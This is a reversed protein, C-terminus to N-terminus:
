LKSYIWEALRQVTNAIEDPNVLTHCDGGLWYSEAATLVGAAHDFVNLALVFPVVSDGTCHMMFLAPEGATIVAANPLSGSSEACFNPTGSFGPTSANLSDLAPDYAAALAGFSGASSGFTFVRQPDIKYQAAKSRGFRVAARFDAGVLPTGAVYDGRLAQPLLRYDISLVVYGKKVMRTCFDVSSPQSKSGGVFGGGHAYVIVVRKTATDGQPRYLDLKLTENQGSHPNFAQGYVVNSTVVVSSFVDQLYRQAFLTQALLLLLFILRM